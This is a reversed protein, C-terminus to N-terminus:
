SIKELIHSLLGEAPRPFRKDPWLDPRLISKPIAGETLKDLAIAIAEPIKRKGSAWFSVTTHDVGLAKGLHRQTGFLTSALRIALEPSIPPPYEYLKHTM